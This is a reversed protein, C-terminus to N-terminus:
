TGSILLKYDDFKRKVVGEAINSSIAPSENVDIRKSLHHNGKLLKPKVRM